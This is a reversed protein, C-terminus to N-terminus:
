NLKELLVCAQCIEKSTAAGCKKCTKITKNKFSEKVLPLTELFSSVINYKTGPYRKEFENILELVSNRYSLKANPCEAYKDLINNLFAFTTIEKETLFYFPKIRRIFKPDDVIGTVPGLVASARTNKRFQNMLITQAEDDLNHGTALKNVGLELAKDNLIKRRFVGCFTCPITEPNKKKIEDLTKGFEKKFSFTHLKIKNKKCFSKVFKFNPDRYDKIGEDIALAVLKVKTPKFIKNLIYLLSMSDKGGSCAIGITDNKDIMNYIRITKRVKREFYINFHKKCLSINSNPLTIVSNNKCNRCNM